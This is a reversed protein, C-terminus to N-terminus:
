VILYSSPDTFNLNLFIYYLPYIHNNGSSPWLGSCITQLVVHSGHDKAKIAKVKEESDNVSQVIEIEKNIMVWQMM